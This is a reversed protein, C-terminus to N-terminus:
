LVNTVADAGDPAFGLSESYAEPHPCVFWGECLEQVGGKRRKFFIPQCHMPARGEKDLFISVTFPRARRMWDGNIGEQRAEDILADAEGYPVVVNVATNPILRYLESVKPYNQCIIAERLAKEREVESHNKTQWLRQYFRRVHEPNDLDLNGEKWMIRALEAAQKYMDTPYLRESGQQFPLFVRLEGRQLKNHRNCRGAAQAIADLPALARFVVPFDLDVGAEVCQTAVVRVPKNAKLDATVEDLIKRRHAPCLYTSIHRLGQTNKLANALELAHKRMNVICLVQEADEAAIWARVEEWPTPTELRWDVNVRKSREFLGLSPAAMERPQWGGKGEEKVQANLTDFAPQTATAMVVVAGYKESALRSLTKLTTLALPTPLTQVEDLLIISRALRHLKRSTSPHNTHLSELLQVSTTIIIPADWNQVLMRADRALADDKDKPNDGADAKRTGTLSHHELVFHEGFEAAEFVKRYETATQDLISLFPLVVVIRRIPRDSDQLAAARELAFRLMALTKGSGTPATLTWLTEAAKGAETCSAMLDRRVARTQAPIETNEQLKALHRELAELAKRADLVGGEPRIPDGDKRMASETDLHDADVLASFLMRTDLMAAATTSQQLPVHYREPLTFGDARLRDILLRFNTEDPPEETLRSGNEVLKALSLEDLTPKDGQQLGIHHGQICLALPPDQYYKLAFYAAVSWHDLGSDKNELRHQFRSGYKGTDHLTGELKAREAEGFSEAHKEALEAVKQAHDKMTQWRQKSKDGPYTHAYYTTM